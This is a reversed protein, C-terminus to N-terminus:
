PSAIASTQVGSVNVTTVVLLKPLEVKKMVLTIVMVFQTPMVFPTSKMPVATDLLCNVKFPFANPRGTTNEPSGTIVRV